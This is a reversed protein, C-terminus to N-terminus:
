TNIGHNEGGKKKLFFAKVDNWTGEVLPKDFNNEKGWVCSVSYYSKNGYKIGNYKKESPTITYIVEQTEIDCIRFDDRLPGVMPCNNKFFVYMTDQDIKPSNVIQKLKKTLTATKNRLSKDKCFWDYWGANCQIGVDKSDYAGNDFNELFQGINM